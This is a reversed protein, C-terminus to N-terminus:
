RPYRAARRTACRRHHYRISSTHGLIDRVTATFDALVADLEGFPTLM